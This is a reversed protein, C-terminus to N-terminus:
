NPFCGATCGPCRAVRFGNAADLLRMEGLGEGTGSLHMAAVDSRLDRVLRESDRVQGDFVAIERVVRAQPNRFQASM